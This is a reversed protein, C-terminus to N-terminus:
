YLLTVNYHVIELIDRNKHFRPGLAFDSMTFVRLIDRKRTKQGVWAQVMGKTYFVHSFFMRIM